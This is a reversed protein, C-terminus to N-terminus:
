RHKGREIWRVRGERVVYHCHGAESREDVSPVLTMPYDSTLRWSPRHGTDTNLMVRHGGRCPCDFVLWKHNTPSGVLVAHRAPINEPMDAASGVYIDVKWRRWYRLRTLIGM